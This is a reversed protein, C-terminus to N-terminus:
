ENSADLKFKFDRPTTPWVIPPEGQAASVVSQDDSVFKGMVIENNHGDINLLSRNLRADDFNVSWLVLTGKKGGLLLRTADRNFSLTSTQSLDEASDVVLKRDKDIDYAHIQNEHIIALISGDKSVGIASNKLGNVKIREVLNDTERDFVVIEEADNILVIRRENESVAFSLPKGLKEDGIETKQKTKLNYETLKGDLDVYIVSNGSSLLTASQGSVLITEEIQVPSNLNSEDIKWTRLKKDAHLTMAVTGSKNLQALECAPEPAISIPYRVKNADDPEQARTSAFVFGSGAIMNVGQESRLSTIRPFKGAASKGMKLRRVMQNWDETLSKQNTSLNWRVVGEPTALLVEDEKLDFSATSIPPRIIAKAIPKGNSKLQELDWIQVDSETSSSRTLLVQRDSQNVRIDQVILGSIKTSNSNMNRKLRGSAELTWLDISVGGKISTLIENTSPILKISAFRRDFGSYKADFQQHWLQKGTRLDYTALGRGSTGVILTKQDSAIQFCSASAKENSKWGRLIIRRTPAGSQVDYVILENENKSSKVVLTKGDDSISFSDEDSAMKFQDVLEGSNLNWSQYMGDDSVSVVQRLKPLVQTQTKVGRKQGITWTSIAKGTKSSWLTLNGRNDGAIVRDTDSAGAAVVDRIANKNANSNKDLKIFNRYSNLDWIRATNDHSCSVVLERDIPVGGTVSGLHGVLQHLKSKSELDWVVLTADESSSVLLPRSNGGVNRLRSDPLNMLSLSKIAGSHSSMVSSSNKRIRQTTSLNVEDVEGTETGIYILNPDSNSACIATIKQDALIQKEPKADTGQVDWVVISGDQMLAVISSRDATREISVVRKGYPIARVNAPTNSVSKESFNWVKIREHPHSKTDGATLIQGDSLFKLSNVGLEHAVWKKVISGTTIDFVFANQNKGRVAAALYRGSASWDMAVIEKPQGPQLPISLVAPKDISNLDHVMIKANSNAVAFKRQKPSASVTTAKGVDIQQVNLHCLHYLRYLEWNKYHDPYEQNLRIGELIRFAQGVRNNQISSRALGIQARFQGLLALKESEIAKLAAADAAQKALKAAEENKQSKKLNEKAEKASQEAKTANIKAIKSQGEAIKRQEEAEEKKSEALKTQEVAIKSQKEAKKRQEEAKKRQEKADKFAESVQINQSYVVVASTASVIIGFVLLAAAVGRMFKFRNLRMKRSKSASELKQYLEKESDKDPNLLKLGLDFDENEFACKAYETRAISLKNRAVHNDDWLEVAEQFSFISRSFADYDHDEVARTLETEGRDTITLSDVHSQYERLAKQFEAVSQYRDKNRSAMAKMAIQTLTDEPDHKEFINAAAARITDLVDKGPHPAKQTVIEFLLAGLLYIDSTVGISKMKHRAMEPSMYAPTGGFAIARDDSMDIALGWDMVLVEGFEGVMINDPKLDQHLVNRSHAFSIANCIDHLIALNKSLSSSNITKSWPTGNVLKMSYFLTGDEGVGVDHVPVINPHDLEGTILAEFLFEQRNASDFAFNEKLTKVAVMRQVSKQSAVHVVGMGGEGLKHSLEYDPKDNVNTSKGSDNSILRVNLDDVSLNRKTSEEKERALTQRPNLTAYPNEADDTISLWFATEKSGISGTASGFSSDGTGILTARSDLPTGEPATITEFNSRDTEDKNGSRETLNRDTDLITKGPEKSKQSEITEPTKKADASGVETKPPVDKKTGKSRASKMRAATDQVTQRQVVHTKNEPDDHTSPDDKITKSPDDDNAKGSGNKANAQVSEKELPDASDDKSKPAAGKITIKKPTDESAYEGESNLTRPSRKITRKRSDLDPKKNKQKEDAESNRATKKKASPEDSSASRITNPERITKPASSDSPSELITKNKVTADSPVKAQDPEAGIENKEKKTQRHKKGRKKKKSKSNEARQPKITEFNSPHSKDEGLDSVTAPSSPPKETKPKSSEVGGIVEFEVDEVPENSNEPDSKDAWSYGCKRCTCRSLEIKSLERM